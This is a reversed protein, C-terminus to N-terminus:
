EYWNKKNILNINDRDYKGILYSLLIMFRYTNKFGLLGYKEFIILLKLLFVIFFKLIKLNVCVRVLINNEIKYYISKKFYRYNIKEINLVGYKSLYYIKNLYNKLNYGEEFHLVKANIKYIKFNKEIMRNAFEYDEFGYGTFREDFYIEKKYNRNIFIGMNMVVVNNSKIEKKDVKIFHRSQRYKLYGSKNIWKKPYTVIGCFITRQNKLSLFYKKVFNNEPICDDDIFVLKDSKAFKIGLNRKFSLNNTKTNIYIVKFSKNKKYLECLSKTNDSSYSDCVLVEFQFNIGIQKRLKNFINKLIKARNYTPIIISLSINSM